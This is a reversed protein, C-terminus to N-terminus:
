GRWIIEEPIGQLLFAISLSEVAVLWAPGTSVSQEGGAAGLVQVIGAAALDVVLAALVMGALWLMARGNIELGLRVRRGRDLTRRLLGCLVLALLTASGHILLM